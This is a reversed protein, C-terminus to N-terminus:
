SPGRPQIVSDSLENVEGPQARFGRALLIAELRALGDLLADRLEGRKLRMTIAAIVPDLEAAALRERLGVDPLLVVQREFLSVLILIGDRRRTRYLGGELFMAQATQLVETERRARPLLLRALPAIWLTALALAAGAALVALATDAVAQLAEWEPEFLAAVVAALAAASAGLAFAKWPIEPYSDARAIVATVAEVGTAAELGTVRQQVATEAAPDLFM